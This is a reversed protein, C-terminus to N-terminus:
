CASVAPTACAQSPPPATCRRALRTIRAAGRCAPLPNGSESASTCRQFAAGDWASALQLTPGAWAPLAHCSVADGREWFPWRPSCGVLLEHVHAPRRARLRAPRGQLSPAPVQPHPRGGGQVPGTHVLNCLHVCLQPAAAAHNLLQLRLHTHSPQTPHCPCILHSQLAMLRAKARCDPGAAAACASPLAHPPANATRVCARGGKWRTHSPIWGATPLSASPCTWCRPPLAPRSAMVPAM